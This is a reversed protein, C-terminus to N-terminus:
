AALLVRELSDGHGALLRILAAIAEGQAGVQAPDDLDRTLGVLNRCEPPMTLLFDAVTRWLAAVSNAEGGALMLDSVAQWAIRRRLWSRNLRDAAIAHRVRARPTYRITHGARRLREALAIEENGLLTGPHRGLAEDFGGAACLADRRFAINTGALWEGAGLDRSAPGRDVVSFYGEAWPGLWNPRAAPWVPVVPGGAVAVAPADVFEAELAALWDPDAIADDDIFAIFPATTAAIGVNRAHSLGPRDAAIWRIHHPQGTSARVRLAAPADASNDVVVIERSSGSRTQAHLAALCLALRDPRDRTCVIAAIM